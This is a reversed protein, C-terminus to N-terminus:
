DVNSPAIGDEQFRPFLIARVVVGEDVGIVGGCEAGRINENPTVKLPLICPLVEEQWVWSCPGHKVPYQQCVRVSVMSLPQLSHKLFEAGRPEPIGICRHKLSSLGRRLLSSWCVDAREEPEHCTGFDDM